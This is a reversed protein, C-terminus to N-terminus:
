IFLFPSYLNFLICYTRPKEVGVTNTIYFFTHIYFILLPAFGAGM